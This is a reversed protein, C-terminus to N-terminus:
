SPIALFLVKALMSTLLDWTIALLVYVVRRDNNNNNNKNNNTSSKIIIVDNLVVFDEVIEGTNFRVCMEVKIIWVKTEYYLGREEFVTL